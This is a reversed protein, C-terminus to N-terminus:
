GLPDVDQPQQDYVDALQKLADAAGTDLAADAVAPQAGPQPAESEGLLEALSDGAQALLDDISPLEGQADPAMNLYVDSMVAQSGDAMTVTGQELHLNGASDVEGLVSYGTGLSAIGAEALSILEGEDTQHNQNADQWVKLEDFRDDSADVVGDHNSDYSALKAFGEGVQGGFLESRDDIEGNGNADVALFADEGSLWGSEVAEGNNHLDFKGETAGLATTQVGDGNMDIAIPSVYAYSTTDYINVDIGSDCVEVDDANESGVIKVSLDETGEYYGGANGADRDVTVMERWTAIDLAESTSEGAPVKLWVTDGQVICGDQVLSFDASQDVPGVMDRNGDSAYQGNPVKGYIVDIVEGGIGWRIDYYGGAMIDQDGAWEDVRHASGDEVRIQFWSDHDVPQDLVVRFSAVEGENVESDGVLRACVPQGCGKEEVTVMVVATDYGGNGDTVTYTFRDTGTFGGEPQYSLTGDANQVVTGHEPQDVRDIKLDDGDRDWDNALVDIVVAQNALTAASDDDAAPATNEPQGPEVKIYVKTTDMGGNGDTVTYYFVDKGCYGDEPTYTFTGDDNLEVTGHKPQRYSDITLTDGDPDTDNALVDIVVSEGAETTARDKNADPRHNTDVPEEVKIYVKTTDTGGNGDTVTYYFVDKGHYGDDPTYTFTGDDNLEVTGHKPQRYSDIALMDGDPDTDNALVDIVVSEGAETTARDKNADPRQNVSCVEDVEVTVTATSTGGNGDTITYTFTDTGSFDANPTYTLTGDANVTVHGNAPQDVHEVALVDGDLDSDNALVDITVSKDEDTKATDDVAVPADNVPKVCVNVTATSTGGNGDSITYTFSDPGNYNEAPTYSVTGDDNITVTGHQPESVDTVSLSDGDLDSDNALVDITISSDEDVSAQDDMATPGDNTPAVVVTVTATSTGGNGDSVTYSFTDTGSFDANPTYSFTGDDNLTVTGNAPHDHSEITLADGDVDSDNALVDITISTDEDTKASDDAAVPADNVPKVCVNVTATSTGGNGDSITYTFSDPGNYNEAPTYSVTGDDNITVTGHQPESVDIVSLSDGDLDSDNALVDITVSSDEDVNAEDNKAVPGDNTPAVVVTVTATSTGGNGDTVTYTFTDTGSFDANPTYSFTGDGNLTVTGNAPQGHSEITLADGDVDSDNALVDITISTDENTKASDDVAVPADNVPKVCVYVTATDNGGNGDDIVYTFTDNGNFDPDPTYTLTGDSNQTVTGHAPQGISTISLTDGDPDVDNALVDITIANDENTVVEEDHPIPDDNVPAVVVTVTATSTGGNGDTVTYSFTDTGSFDANPTYSFTGDDNLTVTGNAPQDHSEISLTDGDVDSDNALVDITISADEDTSVSDDEAKPGDNVPKVCVNVTATATGGNGDSITYTFSDPGNYNEAPTYGVTGDDNITVTGHQPESVDTVSLSDGDLDSDNALVDITVSNDEDVNAEDDKAVPGDNTPAVVVAVTATSMGGNGDSVTYTFTDTGSFDANPTYSFTGDDNLTVTGNAPQDHSEITLADGDVDSDNALVDITISTDEDTKASDDVAVPVDNVPKVCVYVTATDNGGNGDDIVYTFTDNGNFDPDPTYTLTGDSNQTVTGHAPQGISTISLTDGDPDVDNALVDITIANDENTVVEEDHPIPDDNVPAVVVTVTATSTGGNGDTVTYTFTDTGSFDANPTYSFTGDGNLTVTGNAPQGHSEITLADGDVDSDNALVDITISTDEDTSVSDDEAKPGDNVPKVCVNVTATATGGNGDSITYTFSDPGNYNEAPTYSVTGDDNITVTGHQPESVDTVSLSDGDLDSDNALVDITVSSDEDVNAEDNKAVPGDNTPAVVVTVTATSTGGNGDTVTYTFTDTGSFDANPTYSFTGDDNLTVTGNAPQDHSEISLTDGDADSDNALVDITISTDEDTKASDDAAVPADNVPKVCVNVTATSTGGNGDSITYTFSDAGNYNEAPTYRVTGDDNITVTGHQPASVDTVSLSDGDLDTDNALVDITVSADEDVSAQDDMAAPGDNLPAVVVTVTATSTGGNGDSVTYSFSDTGNFDANPTYSFTGDANLTVIGNAPQGHSEITLADGDVDSDNALVDITISTDEDTSVSDDEAKPGDNVPKVCVNVTATATGGNGDSITYTFSDPGNYNETPTYSVTGDDNITVTGHQPESVDTVSLSDGDLDSDNALVDITISNDEDVNAEDDKAVPGDNVPVVVVTVTATSTGGNGDSVTYSFTDTGSFDANPTYSFTGDDNLTVTGNAPQDHSEITLADGDVDSDNALVDITISTDEDTKASDDVAVPADNVPKVCVYVTATDNGGNGDDIVYTFTDNGNFDPDPTYTLTGDPNQTVTGHEPQGISTISLTDGDPDVDNALVDITIANDENTVVEEDHPIPDDNVPAVVVTVTATSTGGNGDSVTYAFTDTGSFDANPTYSFTGDANRVVTGNTPPDFSLITLADGDPDSDNSLVDITVPQDEQTQAADDAATPAVNTQPVFIKVTATDSGGNDDMITYTFSDLGSFGEKPTYNFTGDANLTVTGNAPMSFGTIFIPDGDPDSDNALVDITAPGNNTLLAMDDDADPGRNTEHVCIYVRATDTGGNGDDVTYEFFDVGSFNADPQYSFTGDDNLEVSGHAPRSFQSVTLSDGDPDSDNALVDIISPQGQDIFAVDTDADPRNNEPEPPVVPLVNISVTATDTGGQGDSVVYTFSDSGSFGAEPRYVFNGSADQVVMGHQPQSYDVISLTDGDADSDNALADIVVVQDQEVEANDGIAVPTENGERVTVTVTANATNGDPDVIEYVISDQGSFGDDPTYVLKGDANIQVSGHAATASSVTLPDGDPDSDNALVDIVVPVNEDTVSSDDRAVPAQGIERVEITVRATDGWSNVGDTVSYEFVDTGHFGPNPIYTFSGDANQVVKGNQPQTYGTISIPDGDPDKDNALVDITVPQNEDTVADDWKADPLANEPQENQEDSPQSGSGIVYIEVLASSENGYDDAVVYTFTDKGAYGPNPTYSFTGNGNDVVVGNAPQEFRVISINGGAHLDNALVNIITNESNSAVDIWDNIATLPAGGGNEATTDIQEKSNLTGQQEIGM